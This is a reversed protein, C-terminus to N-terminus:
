TGQLVIHVLCAKLAYFDVQRPRRSEPSLLMAVAGAGKGVLRKLFLKLPDTRLSLL